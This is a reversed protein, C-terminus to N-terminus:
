IRANKKPSIKFFDITGDKNHLVSIGRARLHERFRPKLKFGQKSTEVVTKGFLFPLNSRLHTVVDMGTKEFTDHLMKSAKISIARFSGMGDIIRKEYFAGGDQKAKRIRELYEKISEKSEREEM